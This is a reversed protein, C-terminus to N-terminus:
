IRREAQCERSWNHCSFWTARLSVRGHEIGIYDKAGEGELIWLFLCFHM